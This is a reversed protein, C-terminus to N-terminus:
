LTTVSIAGDDSDHTAVSAGLTVLGCASCQLCQNM